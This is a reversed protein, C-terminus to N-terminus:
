RLQAPEPDRRQKASPRQMVSSTMRTAPSLVKVHQAAILQMRCGSGDTQRTLWQSAGCSDMAIKCSPLQALYPLLQSCNLRKRLLQNRRAGQGHFHFTNKGIDIGLLTVTNM